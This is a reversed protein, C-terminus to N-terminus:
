KFASMNIFSIVDSTEEDIYEIAEDISRIDRYLTSHQVNDQDYVTWYKAFGNPKKITWNKYQVEIANNLDVSRKSKITKM